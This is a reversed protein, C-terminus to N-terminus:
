RGTVQYNIHNRRGIFVLVAIVILYLFPAAQWTTLEIGFVSVLRMDIFGEDLKLLNIPIYNWLRSLLGWSIPIPVIRAGFLIGIIIAMAGVSNKLLEALVMTFIATMVSSLLLLGMIILTTEGVTLDYSYWNVLAVQISAGFGEVGYTYFNGALTVAIFLLNGVFTVISGALIKAVFIKDRGHKSCLMVQDTKRTHEEGFVNVMAIVIFFTFILCIMYGGQMSTLYEYAIAYQYIFPKELADEKEQWYAQEKESLEYYAWTSEMDAERAEYLMEETLVGSRLQKKLGWMRIREELDAYKRVDGQYAESFIWREDEWDVKAYADRMETLLEEDINKGSLAVGHEREIKNQNAITDYFEDKIYTKGFSGTFAVVVQLAFIILFAIITSKKKVIKRIEFRLLTKM